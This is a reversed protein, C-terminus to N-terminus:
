SLFLAKEALRRRTLGSVVKGGARNWRLFEDAAGKFDGANVKKLLTSSKLAGVGVNFAFCVMASFQNETVQVKLCKEVGEETRKLDDRLLRDATEQDIAVGPGAPPGLHGVGVTWLGASDQYSLLECGEFQKILNLGADNIKM